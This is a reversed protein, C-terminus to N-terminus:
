NHSLHNIIQGLTLSKPGFQVQAHEILFQGLKNWIYVTSPVYKLFIVYELYIFYSWMFIYECKM